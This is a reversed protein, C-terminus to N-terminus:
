VSQSEESGELSMISGPGRLPLLIRFTSGEGPVSEVDLTGGLMRVFREAIALGLGTGEVARNLAGEAQWFAEFLRSRHEEAIGIGTDRVEFLVDDHRRTVRLEVEGSPTFKVANGLLNLLVQRLKRPDTQMTAPAEQTGIHFALGKSIALPEIIATVESLVEDLVVPQLDVEEKGVEIRAFTLMEEILRLLHQASLRLREVYGRSADPLPVPVGMLLLDTYGLMANLPTRLEHSMTAMFGTKIRNAEEAAERAAQAEQLARVRAEDTRLRETVDRLVVTFLRQGGVVAQSITAEVPFETGDARLAPLAGPQRHMSRTTVGTEGFRRMHEAHARRFRAPIFRDLSSGIAESASLGFLREAARNFVVIRRQEDTTIIGDMASAVVQTLRAESERLKDEAQKRETLDRTVKAFGVLRGDRTRLATIVVNAWFLGGDKRVRWGEEEYSGERSAVELEAEPHGRARDEETYFLSFHRGIVEDATYGKIREAGPNWSQIHGAADLAFIAYDQVSEVLLRFREESRRLSDEARRRETLDRTVKAFGVLEGNERLATIVVNAWFRIGDQRVRWGEEEYRGERAAIELEHQPHGRGIDEPTYFISFHRGLIEAATYGKLREAGRNWSSIRGERDLLFIGYDVVSEVLLGFRQESKSLAARAEAHRRQATRTEEHQQARSIALAMRDAALQLLSLEAEEFRRPRLSGVKVVGLLEEEVLLPAVMASRLRRISPDVVEIRSLDDVIVAERRAAVRGAIGQGLPITIRKTAVGELGLSARVTLAAGDATCLLVRVVDAALITRLREVMEHLLEDLRLHALAAATLSQVHHLREAVAEPALQALVQEPPRTSTRFADTDPDLTVSSAPNTPNWIPSRRAM